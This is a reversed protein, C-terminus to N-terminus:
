AVRAHALVYAIDFGGWNPAKAPAIAPLSGSALPAPTAAAESGSPDAPAAEVTTNPAQVITTSSPMVITTCRANVRLQRFENFANGGFRNRVNGWRGGFRSGLRNDFTNWDPYSCVSQLGGGQLGLLDLNLYSGNILTLGGPIVAISSNCDSTYLSQWRGRGLFRDIDSRHSLNRNLFTDYSNGYGCIDLGLQANLWLQHGYLTPGGWPLNGGPIWHGHNGWDGNSGWGGGNGGHGGARPTVCTNTITDLVLPPTCVQPAGSGPTVCSHSRPDFVLPLVCGHTGSIGVNLDVNLGPGSPLHEGDCGVPRVGAADPACPLASPAASAVGTSVVLGLVVALAAIGAVLLRRM